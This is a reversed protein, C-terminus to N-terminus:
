EDVIEVEKEGLFIKHYLGRLGNVWALFFVITIGTKITNEIDTGLYGLFNVMQPQLITHGMITLGPFQLGTSPETNAFTDVVGSVFSGTQTIFNMGQVLQQGQTIADGSVTDSGTTDMMQQTQNNIAAVENQDSPQEYSLTFESQVTWISGSAASLNVLNCTVFFYQANFPMVFAGTSDPFVETVDANGSKSVYYHYNNATIYYGSYDSATPSSVSTSYVYVNGEATCLIKNGESMHGGGDSIFRVLTCPSASPKSSWSYGSSSRYYTDAQIITGYSYKGYTSQVPTVKLTGASSSNVCYAYNYLGFDRWEAYAKSPLLM